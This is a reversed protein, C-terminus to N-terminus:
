VTSVGYKLVMFQLARKASSVCRLVEPCVLKWRTFLTESNIPRASPKRVHFSHVHHLEAQKCNTACRSMCSPLKNIRESEKMGERSNTLAKCMIM